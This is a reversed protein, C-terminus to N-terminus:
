ARNQSLGTTFSRRGVRGAYLPKIYPVTSRKVAFASRDLRLETANMGERLM